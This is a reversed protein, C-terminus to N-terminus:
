SVPSTKKLVDGAALKDMYVAFRVTDLGNEPYVYVLHRGYYVDFHEGVTIPLAKATARPIDFSTEEGLFTGSYHLGSEDASICGFGAQKMAHTKEDPTCLTCKSTLPVAVDISDVCSFYWENVSSVPAGHIRYYEDMCADMGCKLCIIHGREGKLTHIGGCSPCRWLIGEIGQTMDSCRYKVGQMAKEEDHYVAKDIAERLDADSMNKIDSGCLLKETTINIKGRRRLRSWKPYSLYAGNGVVTYVDVGLKRVMDYTGDTVSLSHGYWTLRGEPFMVVINNERVARFINLVAGTDACYMRKTIVHMLPLIRRLLPDNMFHLSLVFTPRHPFLAIAMIIHDMNSIHPSLVLAPGKIDRLGSRDVSIGYKIRYYPYALAYAAYYLIPNPRGINKRGGAM